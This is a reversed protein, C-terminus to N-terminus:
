GQCENRFQELVAQDEESLVNNAEPAVDDLGRIRRIVEVNHRSAETLVKLNRADITMLKSYKKDADQQIAKLATNAIQLAIRANELGTGMDNIDEIAAEDIAKAVAEPQNAHEPAVKGALHAKVRERKITTGDRVWGFKKARRRIAGDSTGFESAMARLSKLGARYETEVGLWDVAKAVIKVGNM